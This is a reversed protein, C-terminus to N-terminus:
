VHFFVRAKKINIVFVILDEYHIFKVLILRKYVRCSISVATFLLAEVATHPRQIPFSTIRSGINILGQNM